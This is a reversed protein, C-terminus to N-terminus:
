IHLDVFVAEHDAYVGILEMRREPWQDDDDFSMAWWGMRGRSNWLGDPGVIAYTDVAPLLESLLFVRKGTTTLETTEDYISWYDWKSKPNYTSFRYLGTEDVGGPLGSWDKMQIALQDVDGPDLQYHKAMLEIEGQDVYQKYAEVTMNEDYPALLEGVAVDVSWGYELPLVVLCRYHTV